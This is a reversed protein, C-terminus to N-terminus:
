RRHMTFTGRPGEGAFEQHWQGKLERGDFTGRAVVEGADTGEGVRILLTDPALFAAEVRNGRPPSHLIGTWHGDAYGYVVPACYRSKCYVDHTPSSLSVSFRSRHPLLGSTAVEMTWEGSLQTITLSATRKPSERCDSVVSCVGLWLVTRLTGRLVSRCSWTRFDPIMKLGKPKADRKRAFATV